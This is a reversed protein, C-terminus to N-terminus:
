LVWQLCGMLLAIVMVGITLVCGKKTETETITPDRASADFIFNVLNVTTMYRHAISKNSDIYATTSKLGSDTFTYNLGRGITVLAYGDMIVTQKTEYGDIITVIIHSRIYQFVLNANPVINKITVQANEVTSPNSLMVIQKSTVIKFDHNNGGLLLSGIPYREIWDGFSWDKSM